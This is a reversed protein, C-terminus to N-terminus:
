GANDWPGAIVNGDHHKAAEERQGDIKRLQWSLSDFPDGGAWGANICLGLAKAIEVSGANKVVHNAAEVLLEARSLAKRVAERRQWGGHQWQKEFYEARAKEQAREQRNKEMRRRETLARSEPETLGILAGEIIAVDEFAPQKFTQYRRLQKLAEAHSKPDDLRLRMAQKSLGTAACSMRGALEELANYGAQRINEPLPENM